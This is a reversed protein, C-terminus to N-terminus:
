GKPVPDDGFKNGGQKFFSIAVTRNDLMEVQMGLGYASQTYAVYLGIPSNAMDGEKLEGHWESPCTFKEATLQEIYDRVYGVTVSSYVMYLVDTEAGGIGKVSHEAGELMGEEFMPIGELLYQLNPHNGIEEVSMNTVDVKKHADENGNLIKDLEDHQYERDYECGSPLNGTHIIQNQPSYTVTKIFEGKETFEDRYIEGGIPCMLRYIQREFGNTGVVDAAGETKRRFIIKYNIIEEAYDGAYDGVPRGEEHLYMMAQMGNSVGNVRAVVSAGEIELCLQVPHKTGNVFRLDHQGWVVSADNGYMYDDETNYDVAFENNHHETIDMQAEFAANYLATAIQAIGSGYKESTNEGEWYEAEKFGREATREGVADNFSFEEGPQLVKGNIFSMALQLNSIRMPDDSNLAGRFVSLEDPFANEEGVAAGTFTCGVAAFLVIIAAAAAWLANKRPMKLMLIRKKIVKAGASMATSTLVASSLSFKTSIMDVLTRGYEIRHEGGIKSISASDCSLECDQRSYNAAAWVLPNFWYLSVCLVRVAAWIHDLHSYHTQEHVLIYKVRQEDKAAFENLYIAPRAIGFLCPSDINPAVYVPLACEECEYPRRVAKLYLNFRINSVVIYALVAAAGAIWVFLLVDKVEIKVELASPAPTAASQQHQQSENQQPAINPQIVAHHQPPQIYNENNVNNINQQPIIPQPEQPASQQVSSEPRTFLNMVSIRTDALSVPVLLRVAAIAWLAYIMNQSLKGRLLFRLAIIILILLSSTIIIELM